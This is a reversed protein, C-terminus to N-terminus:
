RLGRSERDRLPATQMVPPLTGSAAPGRLRDCDRAPHAAQGGRGRRAMDAALDVEAGDDHQRGRQAVPRRGREGATGPGLRRGPRRPDPSTRWGRRSGGSPAFRAHDLVRAHAAVPAPPPCSRSSGRFLPGHGSRTGVLCEPGADGAGARGQAVHRLDNAEGAPEQHSGAMGAPQDRVMGGEPGSQPLVGHLVTREGRVRDPLAFERAPVLPAASREM